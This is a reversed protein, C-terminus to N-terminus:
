TNSREIDTSFVEDHSPSDVQGNPEPTVMVKFNTHPTITTLTGQLDRDVTLVGVNQPQGGQPEVWVVYVQADDAVKSAPALHKVRIVLTTNGNAGKTATVVGEAGPMAASSKLPQATKQPGFMCGATSLGAILALGLVRKTNM